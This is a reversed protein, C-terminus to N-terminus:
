RYPLTLYLYILIQLTSKNKNELYMESYSNSKCPLLSFKLKEVKM